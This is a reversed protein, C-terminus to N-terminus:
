TAVKVGVAANVAFVAYVKVTLPTVLELPTARTGPLMVDVKVVAAAAGGGGVICYWPVSNGYACFEPLPWTETLVPPRTAM